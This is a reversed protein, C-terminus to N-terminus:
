SAEDNLRNSLAQAQKLQHKLEPLTKEAFGVIDANQVQAARSYLEISQQLAVIQNDLYAKDFEQDDRLNILWQNAQSIIAPDDATSVEMATGMENLQTTLQQHENMVQQAYQQVDPSGKEVAMQASQIEALSQASATDFFTEVGVGMQTGSDSFTGKTDASGGSGTTAPLGSPGSQEVRDSGQAGQSSDMDAANASAVAASLLLSATALRLLTPSNM